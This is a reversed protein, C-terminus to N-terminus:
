PRTSGLSVNRLSGVPQQLASIGGFQKHAALLEDLRPDRIMTVEQGNIQVSQQGGLTVLTQGTANVPMGNAASANVAPANQNQALVGGQNGATDSVGGVGGLLGWTLSGVAAFAALGAVMKWRFVGDNAADHVRIPAPQTADLSVVNPQAAAYVRQERLASSIASMSRWQQMLSEDSLSERVLAAADASSIEGDHLASLQEPLGVHESEVYKMIM